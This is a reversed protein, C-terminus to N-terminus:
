ATAVCYAVTQTMLGMLGLTHGDTKKEEQFPNKNKRYMLGMLGLTHGDTKKEEQFPNKNKRYMLPRRWASSM